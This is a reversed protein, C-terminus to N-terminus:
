IFKFQYGYLNRKIVSNIKNIGNMRSIFFANDRGQLLARPKGISEDHLM